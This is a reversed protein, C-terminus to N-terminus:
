SPENPYSFHTPPNQAAARPSLIAATLTAAALLLTRPHEM